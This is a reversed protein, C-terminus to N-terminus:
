YYYYYYYYYYNMIKCLTVDIRFFNFSITQLTIEKTEAYLV